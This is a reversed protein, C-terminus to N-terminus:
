EKLMAALDSRTAQLAPGLEAVLTVLLLLLASGGLIALTPPSTGAAGSQWHALVLSAAGGLGAGAALLTLGEHAVLAFVAPRRAGLALRLGIESRRRGALHATIGYIGTSAVFLTLGSLVALLAAMAQPWWLTRDFTTAVTEAEVPLGPAGTRLVRQVAPLLDQPLGQARVLLALRTSPHQALPLYLFPHRVEEFGSLMSDGAVGVVEVLRPDDDLLLGQGLASRGPWLQEALTANVIAVPAGAAGDLRPFDRGELLRIGATALYGPEILSTGVLSPQVDHAPLAVGHMLLAGGLLRESAYTASQVGPLASVLEQLRDATRRAREGALNLSHLDFAATVLHNADFGPDVGKLGRLHLISYGAGAIAVFSLCIEGVVVLRRLALLRGSALDRHSATRLVRMPALHRVALAPAVGVAVAAGCGILLLVAAQTLDLPQRLLEGPFMPPRMRWLLWLEARSTLVGLPLALLALPLSEALLM